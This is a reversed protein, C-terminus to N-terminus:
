EHDGTTYAPVKTQTDQIQWRAVALLSAVSRLIVRPGTFKISGLDEALQEVADEVARLRKALDDM